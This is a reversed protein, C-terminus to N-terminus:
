GTGNEAEIIDSLGDAIDRVRALTCRDLYDPTYSTHRCIYVLVQKDLARVTETWFGPRWVM